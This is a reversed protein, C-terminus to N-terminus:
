FREVKLMRDGVGLQHVVDMGEIVYGIITYRGDLHPTPCHSVFWQCGETDQGSSALGVAGPTYKLTSFESRITYDASGYGDGRPCGGQIVFNPVLRHFFKGDYFGKDVLKLISGVSAPADNVNLKIIFDGKTTTVKIRQSSPIKSIYSWDIPHNWEALPKTFKSDNFLALVKEIDILAEMEGPLSLKTKAEKFLQTFVKADYGAEPKITKDIFANAIVSLVGEDGDKILITLTRMFDEVLNEPFSPNLRNKILSETAATKVAAEEAQLLMNKIQPYLSYDSEMTQLKWIKDYFTGTSVLNLHKSNCTSTKKINVLAPSYNIFPIKFISNCDKALWESFSYQLSPNILFSKDNIFGLLSDKAPLKAITLARMASVAELQRAITYRNNSELLFPQFITLVKASEEATVKAKGLSILLPINVDRSLGSIHAEKLIQSVKTYNQSNLVFSTRALFWAAYFKNKGKQDLLDLMKDTFSADNVGKLLARYYCEAYGTKHSLKPNNLNLKQAATICKGLSILAAETVDDRKSKKIIKQLYPIFFSDKSQGMAGIAAIRIEPKGKGSLKVLPKRFVSDYWSYLGKLALIKESPKGKKLVTKTFVVDNRDKAEWVKQNAKQSFINQARANFSQLLALLLLSLFFAPKTLNFKIARMFQIM